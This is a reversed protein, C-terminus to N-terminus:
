LNVEDADCCRCLAEQEPIAIVLPHQHQQQEQILSSPRQLSIRAQHHPQLNGLPPNAGRHAQTPEPCNERHVQQQRGQHQSVHLRRLHTPILLHLEPHEQHQQLRRHLPLCVNQSTPQNTTTSNISSQNLHTQFAQNTKNQHKHRPFPFLLKQPSLSPPIYVLHM